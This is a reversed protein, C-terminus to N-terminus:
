LCPLTRCCQQKAASHHRPHPVSVCDRLSRSIEHRNFPGPSLCAHWMTVAHPYASTTQAYAADGSCCQAPAARCSIATAARSCQSASVPLNKCAVGFPEAPPIHKHFPTDCCHHSFTHTHCSTTMGPLMTHGSSGASCQARVPM